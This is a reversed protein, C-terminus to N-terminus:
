EHYSGFGNQYKYKEQINFQTTPMKLVPIPYILLSCAVTLRGLYLAARIISTTRHHLLIRTRPADLAVLDDELEVRFRGAITLLPLELPNSSIRFEEASDV